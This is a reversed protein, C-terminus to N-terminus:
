LYFERIFLDDLFNLEKWVNDIQTYSLETSLNQSFNFTRSSKHIHYNHQCITLLPSHEQCKTYIINRNITDSFLQINRVIQTYSLEEWLHDVSSDYVCITLFMWSKESIIFLVIMYVFQWSCDVRGLFQWCLQWICLDYTYLIIINVIEPSLKIYKVM